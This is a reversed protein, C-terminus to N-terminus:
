HWIYWDNVLLLTGAVDAYYIINLAPTELLCTVKAYEPEHLMGTKENSENSTHYRALGGWKTQHQSQDSLSPVTPASLPLHLQQALRHFAEFSFGFGSLSDNSSFICQEIRCSLM